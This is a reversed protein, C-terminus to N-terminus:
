VTRNEKRDASIKFVGLNTSNSIVKNPIEITNYGLYEIRITYTDSTALFNFNGSGDTIDGTINNPDTTSILTINAYELPQNTAAEVVSGKIYIESVPTQSWAITSLSLSTVVTLFRFSKM